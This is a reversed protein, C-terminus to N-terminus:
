SAGAGHDDIAFGGFWSLRSMDLHCERQCRSYSYDALGVALHPVEYSGYRSIKGNVTNVGCLSCTRHDDAVLNCLYWALPQGIHV